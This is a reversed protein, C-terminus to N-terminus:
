RMGDKWSKRFSHPYEVNLVWDKDYRFRKKEQPTLRPNKM